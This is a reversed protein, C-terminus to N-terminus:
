NVEVTWTREFIENASLQNIGEKETLQQNHNASDAIGCWPEICVFDANKAAWIGLFPFGKFDFTLQHATRDSKLTVRDPQLHKFVLADQYFLEKTLPIRGNEVPLKEPAAEILGEKTLPWRMLDETTNFELYYDEYSTGGVVPVKFAPHGGISFFMETNGTNTVEYKVSLQNGDLSYHLRLEFLFPFVTLSTVDSKLLFTVSEETQNEVTFVRERAFGHRPLNYNKGEYIFSDEKVSGIIPFLVPSSKGWFAPDASWMYEIQSAQHVLSVLEAGKPNITASIVANTINIM